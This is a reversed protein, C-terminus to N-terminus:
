PTTDVEEDWNRKVKFFVLIPAAVFISSYTGILVGWILAFSFGKLIEGGFVYISMLALLTTVSTKLTRPLTSNVADNILEQIDQRDDIKLFERIRDYIVVTDNMSYGVITLIAAVISLNFEFGVLSFAGITIVVDHILALISGLSFQWEFRIWIYILMLFLALVVSYLGSKTLEKSIKSGVVEVRRFDFERALDSELHKKISGVFDNDQGKKEITALFERSSGFEKVVVDGLNIKLLSKRIDESNYPQALKMEIVTGGKFDVGLNLGKTFFAGLSIVFLITSLVLFSKKFKLFNYKKNYINM